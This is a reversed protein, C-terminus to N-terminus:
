MWPQPTKIERLANAFLFGPWQQGSWASQFRTNFSTLVNLSSSGCANWIKAREGGRLNLEMAYPITKGLASREAPAISFAFFEVAPATVPAQLEATPKQMIVKTAMKPKGTVRVHTRHAQRVSDYHRVQGLVRQFEQATVCRGQTVRYYSGAPCRARADVANNSILTTFITVGVVLLVRM